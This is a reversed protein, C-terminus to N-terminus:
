CKMLFWKKALKKSKELWTNCSFMKSVTTGWRSIIEGQVWWVPIQGDCLLNVNLHRWIAWAFDIPDFYLLNYSMVLVFKSWFLYNSDLVPWMCSETVLKVCYESQRGWIYKRYLVPPDPGIDIVEVERDRWCKSTQTKQQKVLEIRGSPHRSYKFRLEAKSNPQSNSLQPPAFM